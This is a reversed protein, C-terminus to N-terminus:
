KEEIQYITEGPRKMGYEERAIREVVSDALPKDLKARLREIDQRLQANERNLTELEQHWYYRKLVSHSDFFLVWVCVAAVVIGVAWSFRNTSESSDSAAM